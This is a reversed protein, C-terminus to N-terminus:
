DAKRRGGKAEPKAKLPEDPWSHRPYRSRLDKRVQFYTDAWFNGLDDTIQVPRYNPGLLHLVVSVRGGALKPSEQWGFVEQLRVALVPTRTPEYTLRIRNGSPVVIAEPAEEDLRRSQEYSLRGKLLPALPVRQLEDLTSVGQCAEGLIEVLAERDFTPWDADPMTKRLFALRELWPGASADNRFFAEVDASLFEALASSAESPDVRGSADQKILLDSFYISSVAVARRRESNYTVIRERRVQHPFFEELWEPRIASAVRVRAELLGAYREERPDMALLFEQDRVQSEGSLRIGRGGVMVGTGEVGRMRVVRDPYALLLWRLLTEDDPKGHDRNSDGLVRGSIKLLDDRVRAAQRVASVDIGRDLLHIAFQRAEAEQFAEVRSFLDSLSRETRASSSRRADLIDKESLLSSITAGSRPYGESAAQLLIRAIRPHAPIRLLDKGIPTIKRDVHGLAGLLVLLREAAEHRSSSPPSFWGFDSAGAGSWVHVNLLTSALDLRDIEATESAELARHEAESWLRVCRGPGTRGARGARQDASARSIRSVTLRDLGRSADYSAVKALGSDIVSRVGEITLSTEAINTALIVKRSAAPRLARDQEETSLSGHLPLVTLSAQASLRGLEAGARRIEEVGPLFVLIDGGDDNEALLKELAAVVGQNIASRPTLAHFIEVPYTRGKAEIVPCDDLFRSIPAPDLTASMVILILDERVTSRIEKLLAIALDTHLSREHFEDLIVAGIGELFPDAVIRRNLIGETEVRLRTRPGARKEFRIQYGVEEGLKWGNEDAIRAAVGRTAVRRPQLLIIGPNEPRLLGSGLLAPPVRTTKGSGPPAILVLCPNQRLSDLIEPISADIPLSIM